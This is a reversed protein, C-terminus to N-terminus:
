SPCKRDDEKKKTLYDHILTFVDQRIEDRENLLHHKGEEVLRVSAFPFKKLLFVVNHQWDVTTDDKGQIIFVDAGSPTAKKIDDNWRMLAEAWSLPVKDHQLPDNKIFRLFAENSSNTRVVRKLESVLPKLLKIGITSANWRYSRVLPCIFVAKQIVSAEKDYLLYHMAAAAGTSHAIFYVPSDTKALHRRVIEKVSEAYYSFELISAREGTSLGHGPFDITWVHFGKDVFYRITENLVGAHDYYGHLLLIHGKVDEPRFSQVFLREDGVREYGYRYLVQKIPLRYYAAYRQVNENLESPADTFLMHHNNRISDMIQKM